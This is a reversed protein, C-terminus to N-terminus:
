KLGSLSASPSPTCACFTVLICQSVHMDRVAHGTRCIHMRARCCRAAAASHSVSSKLCSHRHTQPWCLPATFPSNCVSLVIHIFGRRQICVPASPHCRFCCSSALVASPPWGRRRKACLSLAAQQVIRSAVEPNRTVHSQSTHLEFVYGVPPQTHARSCRRIQPGVQM